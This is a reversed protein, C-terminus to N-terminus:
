NRAVDLVPGDNDSVELKAYHRNWTLASRTRLQGIGSTDPTAASALLHPARDMRSSL